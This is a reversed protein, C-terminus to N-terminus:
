GRAPPARLPQRRRAAALVGLAGLVLAVSAPEPVGNAADLFHGNFTYVFTQGASGFNAFQDTLVSLTFSFAGSGNGAHLSFGVGNEGAELVDPAFGVLSFLGADAGGLLASFLTLSTLDGLAPDGSANRFAMLIDDGAAVDGVDFVGGAGFLSDIQPGVAVPATGAHSASVIRCAPAGGYSNTGSPCASASASGSASVYSGPAAQTPASAGASAVYSGVPAPTAATAAPYAVYSGVPAIQASSAGATPVFYGVQAPTQASAGPTNVYYGPQAQTTATAASGAVYTGVPATFSTTAGSSPVYHGPTAATPASAGASNVYYGPAAPTPASAGITPVYSGPLAQQTSSAGVVSVYRGLPAPSPSTAGTTNVYYGVPASACPQLGSASFTGVACAQAMAGGASLSLLAALCANPRWRRGTSAPTLRPVSQSRRQM